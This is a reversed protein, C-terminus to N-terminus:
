KISGESYYPCPRILFDGSRRLYLLFFKGDTTCEKPQPSESPVDGKPHSLLTGSKGHVQESEVTYVSEKSVGLLTTTDTIPEQGRVTQCRNDHKVGTHISPRFCDLGIINSEPIHGM